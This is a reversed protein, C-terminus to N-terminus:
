MAGNRLHISSSGVATGVITGIGAILAMALAGWFTARLTAKTINVGGAKAGIVSLLALFLLSAILVPWRLLQRLVLHNEAHSRRM